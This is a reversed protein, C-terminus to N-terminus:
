IQWVFGVIAPAVLGVCLWRVREKVSYREKEQGILIESYPFYRGRLFEVVKSSVVVSVIAFSTLMIWVFTQSAEMGNSLEGVFEHFKRFFRWKIAAFCYLAMFLIYFFGVGTNAISSYWPKLGLVVNYIEHNLRTADFDSGDVRIYIFKKNFTVSASRIDTGRSAAQLSLSVIRGQPHNPYDFLEGATEFERTGGDTCGVEARMNGIHKDLLKVVHRVDDERLIYPFNLLHYGFKTSM